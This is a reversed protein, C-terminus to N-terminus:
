CQRLDILHSSIKSLHTIKYMPHVSLNLKFLQEVTIKIKILCCGFKILVNEHVTM